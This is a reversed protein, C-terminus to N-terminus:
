SPSSPSGYLRCSSQRDARVVRRLQAQWCAWRPPWSTVGDHAPLGNGNNPTIPQGITL